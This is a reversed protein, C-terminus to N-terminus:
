RRGQYRKGELLTTRM